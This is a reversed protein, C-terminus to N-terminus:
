SLQPSFLQGLGYAVGVNNSVQPRVPTSTSLVNSPHFISPATIPINMLLNMAQGLTSTSGGGGSGVGRGPSSERKLEKVRFMSIADDYISYLQTKKQAYTIFCVHM